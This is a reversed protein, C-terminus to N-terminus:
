THSFSIHPSIAFGNILMVVKGKSVAGHPSM